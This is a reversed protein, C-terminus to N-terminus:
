DNLLFCVLFFFSVFLFVRLIEKKKILWGTLCEAALVVGTVMGICMSVVNLRCLELFLQM